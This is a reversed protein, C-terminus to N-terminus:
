LAIRERAECVLLIAWYPGCIEEEEHRRQSYM